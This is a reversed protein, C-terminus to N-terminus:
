GARMLATGNALLWGLVVSCLGLWGLHYRAVPPNTMPNPVGIGALLILLMGLIVFILSLM